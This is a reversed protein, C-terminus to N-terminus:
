SVFALVFRLFTITQMGRAHESFRESYEVFEIVPLYEMRVFVCLRVIASVRMSIFTLLMSIEITKWTALKNTKENLQLRNANARMYFTSKVAEKMYNTEPKLGAFWNLNRNIQEYNKMHSPNDPQSHLSLLYFEALSPSLFSPISPFVDIHSHQSRQWKENQGHQEQQHSPWQMQSCCLQQQQQQRVSFNFSKFSICLFAWFFTM